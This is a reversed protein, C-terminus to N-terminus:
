SLRASSIQGRSSALRPMGQAALLVIRARQVIRVSSLKSRVWKPLEAHEEKSLVIEAAVRM